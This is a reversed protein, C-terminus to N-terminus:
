RASSKCYWDCASRHVGLEEAQAESNLVPSGAVHPEKAATKHLETFVM